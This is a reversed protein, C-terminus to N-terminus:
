DGSEEIEALALAAILEPERTWGMPPKDRIDRLAATARDLRAQLRPNDFKLRHYEQAAEKPWGRRGAETKWEDREARVRGLEAAITDLASLADYTPAVDSVRSLTVNELADRVTALLAETNPPEPKIGCCKEHSEYRSIAVPGDWDTIPAVDCGEDTM